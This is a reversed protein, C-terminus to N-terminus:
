KAKVKKGATSRSKTAVKRVSTTVKTKIKTGENVMAEAFAKKLYQGTWSAKVKAVEKPTGEAIIHGGKVGGEPGMDIVWDSAKIIDLNHEILLVTNGKEVLMQLVGLLRSIDEFHLGTTPEDLIYLTRGTARRSLETALKVRQAEGGSLTTAPQGLKIYGLGVKHLVDLKEFISDKDAFFRRAEEVTMDLVDAIDKQKYHIDLVEPNYRRGRCEPCEVYVDPMFQM